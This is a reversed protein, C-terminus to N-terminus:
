ERKRHRKRKPKSASKLTSERAVRAARAEFEPRSTPQPQHRAQAEDLRAVAERLQLQLASPQRPRDRKAKLGLEIQADEWDGAIAEEVAGADFARQMVDLAEVGKLDLLYGVLFGNLAPDQDAFRGLQQALAAVCMEHADPHLIGIEKLSHAAAARASLHNTGNALYAILALIAGPGLVGFARPLDEGVFDDHNEHIRRFLLTLPEAAEIAHLQALVRWAHAPAWVELRESPADNLAPDTAMRILDPIHELGLGLRLYDPWEQMYRSDGLSLLQDVPPAYPYTTM